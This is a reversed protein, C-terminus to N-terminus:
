NEFINKSQLFIFINALNSLSCHQLKVNTFLAPKEVKDEQVQTNPSFLLSHLYKVIKSQLVFSFFQKSSELNHFDQPVMSTCPLLNFFAFKQKLQWSQQKSCPRMLNVATMSWGFALCSKSASTGPPQLYHHKDGESHDQQSKSCLRLCWWMMVSTTKFPFQISVQGVTAWGTHHLGRALMLCLRGKREKGGIIWSSVRLKRWLIKQPSLPAHHLFCPFCIRIERNRM